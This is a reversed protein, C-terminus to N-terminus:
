RTAIIKLSTVLAVPMNCVMAVLAEPSFLPYPPLSSPFAAFLVERIFSLASRLLQTGVLSLSLDRFLHTFEPNQPWRTNRKAFATGKSFHFLSKSSQRLASLIILDNSHFTSTATLSLSLYLCLFLTLAGRLTAEKPQKWNYQPHLACKCIVETRYTRRM